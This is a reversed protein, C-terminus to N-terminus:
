RGPPGLALTLLLNAGHEHGQGHESRPDGAPEGTDVFGLRDLVRLSPTNWAWVSAWLREHGVARAWTVVARAAETAYGEAWARRLLEYALEPSRGPEGEVLGCAGVVDGEVRREVAYLGTRDPTPMARIRDALDAVTPRGQADIRRRAPVRPDREAWLARLVPAEEARWPRLLLRDTELVDHM